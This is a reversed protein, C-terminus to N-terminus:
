GGLSMESTELSRDIADRSLSPMCDSLMHFPSAYPPKAEHTASVLAGGEWGGGGAGGNGSGRQAARCDGHRDVDHLRAQLHIAATADLLVVAAQVARLLQDVSLARAREKLAERRREHALRSVARQPVAKVPRDLVGHTHRRVVGVGCWWERARVRTRERRARAAVAAPMLAPSGTGRQFFITAPPAAPATADAMALGDSRIFTRSCVSPMAFSSAPLSSGLRYVPMTLQKMVTTLCSPTRARHVTRWFRGRVAAGVGLWGSWGM